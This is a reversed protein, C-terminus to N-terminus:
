HGRLLDALRDGLTKPRAAEEALRLHYKRDNEYISGWCSRNRRLHPGRRFIGDLFRFCTEDDAYAAARSSGDPALIPARCVKLYADTDAALAQMAQILANEDPYDAACLFSEPNFEGKVEPDGWYVPVAGAAFADAIKETCYGPDASNEYALAFRYNQQFATKDAVPGGVNNRYGGGSDLLGRQMLTEMFANREASFDNSVVCCCFGPRDLYYADPHEHKHLAPAWTDRMAYLPLRLYRGQYAFDPFGMAYDYLNLDAACLFSEPNFEGKVEPDGWYVPVAGAAFADAIKETCYGPDASNEYALAFRYNQQFATKDAVPGGVNNRYGGGSDLLGRQMLTEMFANREASFDNSVVCCCFGPRDLYYADPHEHKHLAPAWTDRMAYLPLRLYRGQYAFDPFGMAYDYLNLDPWSDEGSFQIRCCDYNLAQHGFTGCIVFDPKDAPATCYQITYGRKTLARTFYNDRPNWDAALDCLALRVTPM